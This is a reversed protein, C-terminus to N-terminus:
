TGDVRRFLEAVTVALAAVLREVNVLRVDLREVQPEGPPTPGRSTLVAAGAVV